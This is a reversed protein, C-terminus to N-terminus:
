EGKKPLVRIVEEGKSVQGQKMTIVDLYDNTNTIVTMIETSYGEKEIAEKEFSVLLDGKEVRDGQKVHADFYKGQLNVTNIGIHLLVELGNDAVIGIAHKTPFLTKVEGSIPAYVEGKEPYVVAGKGLAESSFAADASETIDAAKGDAPASVSLDSNDASNNEENQTETSDKERYLVMTLVFGAVLPVIVLLVIPIIQPNEPNLFGLMGIIGMGAYTYMKMSFIGCIFGAVAGAICSIGLLLKRSVLIGYLAPETVGMFASAAAAPALRKLEKDKTRFILAILIGLVGFCVGGTSALMASPNGAMLSYFAFMMPIFHIGFMVMIQWVFGLLTSALLPSLGFLFDLATSIGYSIMNAVPGVVIFTLPFAILLTLMPTGFGNIVTPLKEKLFKYIPAALLIGFLVPLFSSTYTANVTKGFFDLDVGQITPYTLAAGFLFGFYPDIGLQKASNYGMLIPMAYFFCDGAANLLQYIGGEQSLGLMLFIVNLGKIIGCACLLNLTPGMGSMIFKLAKDIFTANEDTKQVDKQDESIGLQKCVEDYVDAVHEGIVVMYEGGGKVISMVGDTKKLVEDNAKSEDFLRFRVRTICHRLDKINDKGGVNEIIDKALNTYKGM